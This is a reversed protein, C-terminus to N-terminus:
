KKLGRKTKKIIDPQTSKCMKIYMFFLKYFLNINFFPELGETM